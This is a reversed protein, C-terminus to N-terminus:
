CNGVVWRCERIFVPPWRKVVRLYCVRKLCNGFQAPHVGRTASATNITAQYGESTGYLAAEATFGPIAM